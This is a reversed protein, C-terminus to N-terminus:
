KNSRTRWDRLRREANKILPEPTTQTKKSFGELALLVQKYRGEPAFLIRFIQHAGTARVEWIDGRVHRAATLGEKAVKQMEALVDAADEDSLGDIFDEVPKAGAPTQYDRWQRRYTPIPQGAM